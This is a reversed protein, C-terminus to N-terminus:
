VAGTIALRELRSRAVDLYETDTVARGSAEVYALQADCYRYAFLSPVGLAASVFRSHKHFFDALDANPGDRRCLAFLSECEKRAIREAAASALAHMRESTPTTGKDPQTPDTGGDPSLDTDNPDDADDGPQGDNPDNQAESEEVMNLPRLPEDLGDLPDLSEAIRAENRTMWGDLVGNHYFNARAMADGRMLSRTPFEVNLEDDIELFAYRLAEEWRVLWPTLSHTVFDISQQDINSFTAKDLDGIMHPPVRYLRAIESVSFKRTELYQADSNSVEIPHYKMGFELIATKHRNRGSQQAQWRERFIRKQEDDKFQGPYEIWGGPTADNEFYRMGYSQASLGTAITERSAAIPNIGVVGDSSLAKIHFMQGRTLISESQDGNRVHYRWNDDGLMEITIRDPHLPILDTVAGSGDSVIRAFANGRLCLHTMMMERFEMPNQFENPRRAILAYLWHTKVPKKSGNAAENYLVFPLMAVSEALVRVCAYVATLRMAADATVQHPSGKFPVSSFWFDGWPSRDGSDNADAHFNLFM